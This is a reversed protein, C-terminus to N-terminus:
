DDLAHEHISPGAHAVNDIKSLRTLLDLAFEVLFTGSRITQTKPEAFGIAIKHFRAIRLDTAIKIQTPDFRSALSSIV